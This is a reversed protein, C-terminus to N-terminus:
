LTFSQTNSVMYKKFAKAELEELLETFEQAPYTIDLGSDNLCQIHKDIRDFESYYAVAEENTLDCLIMIEMLWDTVGCFEFIEKLKVYIDMKVQIVEIKDLNPPYVSITMGKEDDFGNFYDFNDDFMM